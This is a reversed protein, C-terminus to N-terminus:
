RCGYQYPQPCYVTSTTRRACCKAIEGEVAVLKKQYAALLTQDASRDAQIEAVKKKLYNAMTTLKQHAAAIDATNKAINQEASGMRGELGSVRNELKTFRQHSKAGGVCSKILGQMGDESLNEGMLAIEFDTGNPDLITKVNLSSKGIPLSSMSVNAGAGGQNGAGGVWHSYYSKPVLYYLAGLVFVVLILILIARMFGSLGRWRDGITQRTNTGGRPHRPGGGQGHDGGGGQGGNGRNGQGAGGQNPRQQHTDDQGAQQTTRPQNAPTGQGAHAPDSHQQNAMTTTEKESSTSTNGNEDSVFHDLISLSEALAPVTRDASELNSLLEKAFAKLKEKNGLGKKTPKELGPPPRGREQFHEWVAKVAAYLVDNTVRGRKKPLAAVQQPAPTPSGGGMIDVTVRVTEIQGQMAVQQPSGQTTTSM